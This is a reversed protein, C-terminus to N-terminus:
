LLTRGGLTRMRSLYAGCKISPVLRGTTLQTYADSLADIIDDHWKNRKGTFNEMEDYHSDDFVGDVVFVKGQQLAMLFPEARTLKSKTTKCQVVKYGRGTLRARKHDAAEKGAQGADVPLAIYVDKGDKMATSEILEQVKAPRDRLSVMDLIYFNGTVRDYTCKVGRTYDPDKYAPSPLSGALDYARMRPTDLPVESLPVTNFWERKVYGANEIRAYWNGDLLRERELKKLNELRFVYQPQHKRIWPNDYVNASYFVFSSAYRSVEDGYLERVENKSKFFEFAGNIEIMYTTVGDMEPDPIGSELLYGGKELWKCLFSSNDPNCTMRIQHKRKSQSRLRSTLYWVDEEACQQAEDVLFETCQTGQWDDQNNDLHHCKVEAGSPFSWTLEQSNNRVGFPTFLTCGSRWLSGAQKMQKQSRRAIGAVYNPDSIGALLIRLLSIQTKGSAAAGGWVVIDHKEDNLYMEQKASLPHLIKMNSLEEQSIHFTFDFERRQRGTLTSKSKTNSKPM